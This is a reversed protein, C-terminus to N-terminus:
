GHKGIARELCANETGIKANYDGMVVLVDHNPVREVVTKLIYYFQDKTDESSDNTPAYCQVVTLSGHKGQLRAIIIRENM